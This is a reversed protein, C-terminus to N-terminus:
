AGHNSGEQSGALDVLKRPVFKWRFRPTDQDKFYWRYNKDRDKLYLDFVLHQGDDIADAFPMEIYYSGDESEVVMPGCLPVKSDSVTGKLLTIRFLHRKSLLNFGDKGPAVPYTM